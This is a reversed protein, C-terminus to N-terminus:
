NFQVVQFSAWSTIKQSGSIKYSCQFKWIGTLLLDTTQTTYQIKGDSGDTYLGGSVNYVTGDPQKFIFTINTANQLSLPQNTEEDVVLIVFQIGVSGRQISLM